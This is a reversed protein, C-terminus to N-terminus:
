LYRGLTPLYGRLRFVLYKLEQIIIYEYEIGSPMARNSLLEKMGRRRLFDVLNIGM